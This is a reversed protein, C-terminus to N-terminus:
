CCALIGLCAQAGALSVVIQLARGNLMLAQLREFRLILALTSMFIGSFLSAYWRVEVPVWAPFLGILYVWDDRSHSLRLLLWTLPGTSCLSLVFSTFAASQPYALGLPAMRRRACIVLPLMLTSTTFILAPLLFSTRDGGDYLPSPSVTLPAMTTSLFRHSWQLIPGVLGCLSGRIFTTLVSDMAVSDTERAADTERPANM